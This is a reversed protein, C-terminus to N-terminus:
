ESRGEVRFCREWALTERQEGSKLEARGDSHAPVRINTAAKGKQALGM